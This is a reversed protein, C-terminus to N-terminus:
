SSGERILVSWTAPGVIGDVHLGFRRQVDRIARDTAPGFVGDLALPTATIKRAFRQARKVQYGEDGLKLVPLAPKTAVPDPAQSGSYFRVRDLFLQMPFGNGPDWHTSRKFAQSVARHTTIGRRGGLLEAPGLPVVPIRFRKVLLSVLEAALELEKKSFADLWQERTQSARGSLELHVGDHNAGPACYAVDALEVCQVISNADICYHASVKHSAPLTAFYNAVGEASTLTEPTEATHIVILDVDALGRSANTFWRARVFPFSGLQM